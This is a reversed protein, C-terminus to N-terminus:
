HLFEIRKPKLLNIDLNVYGLCSKLNAQEDCFVNSYTGLVSQSTGTQKGYMCTYVNVDHYMVTMRWLMSPRNLMAVLSPYLIGTKCALNFNRDSLALCEVQYQNDEVPASGPHLNVEKLLTEYTQLYGARAHFRLICMFVDETHTFGQSEKVTPVPLRGLFRHLDKFGSHEQAELGDM